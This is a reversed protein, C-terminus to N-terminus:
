KEVCQQILNNYKYSEKKRIVDGIQKVMPDKTVNEKQLVYNAINLVQDPTRYKDPLGTSNDYSMVDNVAERMLDTQIHVNKMDNKWCAKTIANVTFIAAEAIVLAYGAGKPGGSAILRPKVRRDPLKTSKAIVAQTKVNASSPKSFGHGGQPSLLEPDRPRVQALPRVGGIEGPRWNKPNSNYMEIAARTSNHLNKMNLIVCGNKVTIRSKPPDAAEQGDPDVLKIPNWGCYAYPSISPYEDALPDVSLWGTLLAHDMYRAGFYSYGTEEDHEKGTSNSHFNPRNKPVIELTRLHGRACRGGAGTPHIRSPTLIPYTTAPRNM